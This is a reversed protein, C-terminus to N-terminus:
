GPISVVLSSGAGSPLIPGHGRQRAMVLESREQAAAAFPQLAHRVTLGKAMILTVPLEATPAGLGVLALTGRSALVGVTAAIVDPRRGILSAALSGVIGLVITMLVSINQKGPLVLRALAGIIAGVIIAGIIGMFSM